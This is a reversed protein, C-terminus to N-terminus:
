GEGENKREREGQDCARCRVVIPMNLRASECSIPVGTKVKRRDGSEKRGREDLLM